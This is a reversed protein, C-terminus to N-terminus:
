NFQNLVATTINVDNALNKVCPRFSSGRTRPWVRLKGKTTLDAANTEGNAGVVSIPMGDFASKSHFSYCVDNGNKGAVLLVSDLVFNSPDKFMARLRM